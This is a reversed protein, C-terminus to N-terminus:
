DGRLRRDVHDMFFNWALEEVSSCDGDYSSREYAESRRFWLEVASTRLQLYSNPVKSRSRVQGQTFGIAYPIREHDIVYFTLTTVHDYNLTAVVELKDDKRNLDLDVDLRDGFAPAMKKRFTAEISDFAIQVATAADAESHRGLDFPMEASAVGDQTAIAMLPISAMAALPPLAPGSLARKLRAGLATIIQVRELERRQELLKRLGLTRYDAPFEADSDQFAAVTPPVDAPIWPVPLIATPATGANQKLWLERRRRFVEFERGCWPSGFYHASSFCLMVRAGRLASELEETWVSGAQIDRHAVFVVKGASLGVLQAVENELQRVFTEFLQRDSEFECNESAYSIFVPAAMHGPTPWYLM